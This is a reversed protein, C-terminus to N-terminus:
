EPYLSLISDHHLVSCVDRHRFILTEDETTIGYPPCPKDESHIQNNQFHESFLLATEGTAALSSRFRTPSAAPVYDPDPLSQEDQINVAESGQNNNHCM